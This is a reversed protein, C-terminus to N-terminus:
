QRWQEILVVSWNLAISWKFIRFKCCICIVSIYLLLVWTQRAFSSSTTLIACTDNTKGIQVALSRLFIWVEQFRVTNGHQSVRVSVIILVVLIITVLNSLQIGFRVIVFTFLPYPMVLILYFFLICYCFTCIICAVRRLDGFVPLNMGTETKQKLIETM